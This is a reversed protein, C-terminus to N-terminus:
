SQKPETLKSEETTKGETTTGTLIEKIKELPQGKIMSAVKACGLHLASPVDLYNTALIFDYLDQRKKNAIEDIFPADWPDQVVEKMTKARLPKPILAPETGKHYNMYEVILALTESTVGPLTIETAEKDQELTAKVLKSIEAHKVSIVFEKKDKSILKIMGNAKEESDDLSQINETDGLPQKKEKHEEEMTTDESEVDIRIKKEPQQQM